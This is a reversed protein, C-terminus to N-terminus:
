PLDNLWAKSDDAGVDDDEVGFSPYDDDSKKNNYLYDLVLDDETYRGKFIQMTLLKNDDDGILKTAPKKLVM